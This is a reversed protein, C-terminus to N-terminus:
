RPLVRDRQHVPNTQVTNSDQTNILDRHGQSLRGENEYQSRLFTRREPSAMTDNWVSFRDGINLNNAMTNM